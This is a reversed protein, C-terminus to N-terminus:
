IQLQCTRLLQVSLVLLCLLGVATLKTNSIQFKLFLARSRTVCNVWTYGDLRVTSKIILTSLEPTDKQSLHRVQLIISLTLALYLIRSIRHNKGTM